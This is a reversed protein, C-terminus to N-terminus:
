PAIFTRLRAAHPSEPFSRLFTRARGNAAAAQGSRFLLEISLAEREQYLENTSDHQRSTELLAFAAALEGARLRARAQRLLQAEQRLQSARQAASTPESESSEGFTAV